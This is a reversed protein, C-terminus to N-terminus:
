HRHKSHHHNDKPKLANMCTRLITNIRSQYGRGQTRLWDLIDSDIRVTIREKGASSPMVLKASKWFKDDVPMTDGDSRANWEIEKDTMANVRKWDTKTDSPLDQKCYSVTKKTRQKRM